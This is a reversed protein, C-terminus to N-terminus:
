IHILSLDTCPAIDAFHLIASRFVEGVHGRRDDVREYLSPALEIFQWLLDFAMGQDEQSIKDVIMLVQTNLDKVLTKRKRWSVFSKSKRLSAFRKRVEHALETAGLNHVLELRLRRKIDASGQSVEMLLDALRDAGLDALNAKNLTKKSM